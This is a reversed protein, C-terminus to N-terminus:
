HSAGTWWSDQELDEPRLLLALEQDLGREAATVQRWLVVREVHHDPRLTGPRRGPECLPQHHRQRRDDKAHLAELPAAMGFACGIGVVTAGKEDPERRFALTQEITGAGEKAIVRL